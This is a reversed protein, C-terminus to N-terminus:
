MEYSFFNNRYVFFLDGLIDKLLGKRILLNQLKLTFVRLNCFGGSYVSESREATRIRM